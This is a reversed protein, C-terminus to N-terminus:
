HGFKWVGNDLAVRMVHRVDSETSGGSFVVEATDGRVIVKTIRLKLTEAAEEVFMDLVAKKGQAAEYKTLLQQANANLTKRIAELDKTQCAQLFAQVAKYPASNRAEMGTYSATVAPRTVIPTRFEAEVRWPGEDEDVARLPTKMSVKGAIEGPGAPAVTFVLDNLEPSSGSQSYFEMGYRSLRQGRSWVKTDPDVYVILGHLEGKQAQDGAWFSWADTAKRLEAPVPKDSLLVEIKEKGDGGMADESTAAFVYSLEVRQGKVELWGSAFGDAAAIMVVPFLILAVSICAWERSTVM